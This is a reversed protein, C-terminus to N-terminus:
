TLTDPRGWVWLRSMIPQFTMPVMVVLIFPCSSATERLSEPAAYWRQLLPADEGPLGPIEEVPKEAGARVTGKRKVELSVCSMPPLTM